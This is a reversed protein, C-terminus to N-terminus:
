DIAQGGQLIIYSLPKIEEQGVTVPFLNYNIILEGGGEFGSKVVHDQLKEYSVLKQSGLSTYVSNMEEYQSAITATWQRHDAAILYDYSTNKVISAAANYSLAYHLNSGTELAKLFATETDAYLNIAKGSYSVIGSIVMQYFPVPYDMMDFNSTEPMNVIHDAYLAASANPCDLLLDKQGSINQIIGQYNDAGAWTEIYDTKSGFDSTVISGIASLSLGETGLMDYSKLFSGATKALKDFSLIYEFGKVKDQTFLNLKYPYYKNIQNNINRCADFYEQFIYAKKTFHILDVDPYFGMGNDAAYDSLDRFGSRGGLLREPIAKDVIEKSVSKKDWEQYRINIQDVQKDKLDELISRAESFSTVVLKATGPFGLISKKKSVAGVFDIDVSPKQLTEQTELGETLYGRYAKAMGALDADEGALPIYRNEISKIKPAGKQYTNFTKQGQWGQDLTYSSIQRLSFENYVVNYDSEIGSVTAQITSQPAGDKIIALMAGANKVVGYVPLYIQETSVIKKELIDSVDGGYVPQSYMAFSTKGNNLTMVAGSGDPLLMYGSDSKSSACFYPLMKIGFVEFLGEETIKDVAIKASISGDDNLLITLPITIRIEPFSFQFRLGQKLAQITLGGMDVSGTKSDVTQIMGKEKDYYTVSLLSMMEDTSFSISDNGSDPPNSYWVSGDAKNLIAFTGLYEGDTVTHIALMQNEYILRYGLDALKTSDLAAEEATEQTALIADANDLSDASYLFSAAPVLCLAILVSLWQKIRKLKM